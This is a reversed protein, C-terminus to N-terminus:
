RDRQKQNQQVRVQEGLHLRLGECDQVGAELGVRAKAIAADISESIGNCKRLRDFFDAKNPCHDAQHQRIARSLGNYSSQLTINDLFVKPM